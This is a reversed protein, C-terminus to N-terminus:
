HCIVISDNRIQVQKREIYLRNEFVISSIGAADLSQMLLEQVAALLPIDVGPILAFDDLDAAAAASRSSESSRSKV